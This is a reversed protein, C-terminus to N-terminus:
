PLCRLLPGGPYPFDLPVNGRQPLPKEAMEHPSKPVTAKM